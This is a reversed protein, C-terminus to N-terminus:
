QAQPVGAAAADIDQRVGEVVVSLRDAASWTLSQPDVAAKTRFVVRGESREDIPNSKFDIVVVDRVFGAARSAWYVFALGRNDPSIVVPGDTIFYDSRTVRLRGEGAADASWLEARSGDYGVDLFYYFRKGDLSWQPCRGPILKHWSADPQRIWIWDKQEGLLARTVPNTSQNRFTSGADQAQSPAIVLTCGILTALFPSWPRAM